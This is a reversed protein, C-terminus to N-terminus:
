FLLTVGIRKRAEDLEIVKVRLEQGLRLVD